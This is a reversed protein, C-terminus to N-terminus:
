QWDTKILDAAREAFIYVPAQTHASSVYPLVSADVIRIGDLGKVRFDPDVVGHAADRRYDKWAPGNLFRRASKVAQRMAFIDFDTALFGPDILPPDLPDNSKLRVSGRSTPSVVRTTIGIYDGSPPTGGVFGNSFGLEYHPSKPGAAPDSGNPLRDGPLRAFYLHSVFTDVLPGKQTKMWQHLLHDTMTSNQNIVDFTGGDGKVFWNNVLRPHDSMNKGVDPLHHSTNIGLLKLQERDGIGSNLLIHPTGVTGASLMIEKRASVVAKPGQARQMFEVTRFTRDRTSSLVRTVRTNLLVHLNPRNIFDPGLYSTASSSRSGGKITAQLWGLGLLYGSNMDLNLPFEELDRTTQIVRGNIAQPYGPLSVANIGDVSHFSPDYQGTTDHRDAPPVLMENRRIYKQISRWSWGSDGTVEAYRDYDESSGRTYFMGNISTSGGLVHGRPFGISRGNLGIQATTTYNWDYQTNSLRTCFFPIMTPLANRNSGGAELLLVTFRSNETLRNALVNGAAGAGIIVFDFKTFPLDEFREYVTARSLHLQWLLFAFTLTCLKM